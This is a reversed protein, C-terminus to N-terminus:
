DDVEMGGGPVTWLNPWAKKHPARKTILYTHRGSAGLPISPDEKWIIGTVAIRHMEKEKPEVM